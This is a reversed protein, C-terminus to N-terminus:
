RVPLVNVSNGAGYRRRSGDARRGPPASHTPRTAKESIPPERCARRARSWSSPRTSRIGHRGTIPRGADARGQRPARLQRDAARTVGFQVDTELRPDDDAYIQSILTKFGPKYILFHLHAPRYNHRGQAKVLDGVPGDIPIPYGATKVSRFRFRGDKDTIFKGRLNMDAQKPIRTKTSARDALLAVRRGRRRCGAAGTKDKVPAEVFLAIGPTPSRM